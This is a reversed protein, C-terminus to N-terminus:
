HPTNQHTNQPPSGPYVVGKITNTTPTPAVDAIATGGSPVSRTATASVYGSATVTLTYSGPALSFSYAGSSNTTTSQGNDLKVTAGAIRRTTDTASSGWYVVGKLTGPSQALSFNATTASGSTVAKSASTTVYGSASVTVTYTGAAVSLSYNGSSDTTTSAGGSLAVKAGAIRKGTDTASSGWYVVGKLTGPSSTGKALEVLTELQGYLADGPCTTATTGQQRHGKIRDRNLAIGYERGIARIIRAGADLMTQPARLSTFTGIFSTGANNTNAGGVHAGLFTEVRGQYVKGDQGVLFHYGVDCYGRSDMHFSQIQRMRAPMSATDNNPTVTHHVSMRDPRHRTTCSAARAGWASRLVAVNDAALGHLVADPTLEPVPEGRPEVPGAYHFLGVAV